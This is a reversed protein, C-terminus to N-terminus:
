HVTLSFKRDRLEVSTPHFHPCKYTPHSCDRQQLEPILFFFSGLELGSIILMGNASSNTLNSKSGRLLLFIVVPAALAPVPQVLFSSQFSSHHESSPVQTSSSPFPYACFIFVTLGHHPILPLFPNQGLSLRASGRQHSVAHFDM